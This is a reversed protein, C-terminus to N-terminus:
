VSTNEWQNWLIQWITQTQKQCSAYAKAYDDLQSTNYHLTRSIMQEIIDMNALYRTSTHFKQKGHCEDIYYSIDHKTYDTLENKM